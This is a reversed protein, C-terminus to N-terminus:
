IKKLIKENLIKINLHEELYIIKEKSIKMEFNNLFFCNYQKASQSKIFHYQSDIIYEIIYEVYEDKWNKSNIKLENYKDIIIKSQQYNITIKEQM